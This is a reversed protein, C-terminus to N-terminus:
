AIMEHKVSAGLSLCIFLKAVTSRTRTPRLHERHNDGFRQRRSQPQHGLRHRVHTRDGDAHPQGAPRAVLGVGFAADRMEDLVHEELARRRPRRLLDRLLDVRDAALEVRERGLFVRAVVDLHEVLVQRERDIQEAVHHLTRRKAGPSISRSCPTM